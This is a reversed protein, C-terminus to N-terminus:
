GKSFIPVMSFIKLTRKKILSIYRVPFCLNGSLRIEDIKKKLSTYYFLDAM